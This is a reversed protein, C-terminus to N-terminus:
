VHLGFVHFCNGSLETRWRFVLPERPRESPVIFVLRMVDLEKLMKLEKVGGLLGIGNGM